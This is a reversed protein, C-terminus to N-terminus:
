PKTAANGQSIAAASPAVPTAAGLVETISNGTHNAIWVNGTTDISIASPGDLAGPAFGVSPSLPTGADSFVSISNNGNALWIRQSGDIVIATASSVGGGSENSSLITGTSSLTALSNFTSNISWINGANDIAVGTGGAAVPTATVINGADDLASITGNSNAVWVYQTAVVYNITATSPNYDVTDTPNFNVTLSYTGGPLVAGATVPLIAGGTPTATYAFTGPTVTTADLVGAGLPSGSFLMSPSPVWLIVPTEAAVAFTATKMGAAYTTTAAQSAQVQVTGAGTLTLLGNVVSAPGSIVNYTIAGSSPSTASLAFAADGFTHNPISFTITPASLGTVTLPMASSSSKMYNTDGEYTVSISHGGAGFGAITATVSGTPDLTGSGIPSNSDYFTAM